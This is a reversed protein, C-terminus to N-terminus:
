EPAISGDQTLIVFEDEYKIYNAYKINCVQVVESFPEIGAVVLIQEDFL